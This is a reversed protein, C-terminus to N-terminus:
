DADRLRNLLALKDGRGLLHMRRLERLLAPHTVDASYRRLLFLCFRAALRNADRYRAREQADLGEAFDIRDFLRSHLDRPLEGSRRREHAALLLFKDIEALLELEFASIPRERQAHLLVHVFHSVGEALMLHDGLGPNSASAHLRPSFYLTLLLEDDSSGVLLMEEARPPRGQQLATMRAADTCVFQEVSHDLRTAYLDEIDRQIAPLLGTM